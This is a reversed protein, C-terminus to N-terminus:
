IKKASARLKIKKRIINKKNYFIPKHIVRPLLTKIMEYDDREQAIKLATKNEDNKINPNAGIEILAKAAIKNKLIVAYHLATNGKQDKDNLCAKLELLNDLISDDGQQIAMHLVSAAKEDIASIKEM